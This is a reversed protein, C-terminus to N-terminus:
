PLESTVAENPAVLARRHLRINRLKGRRILGLFPRAFGAWVVALHRQVSHLPRARALKGPETLGEAALAQALCQLVAVARSRCAAEGEKLHVHYKALTVTDFAHTLMSGLTLPAYTFFGTVPKGPAHAALVSPLAAAARRARPTRYLWLPKLYPGPDKGTQFTYSHFDIYGRPALEEALRWLAAAEPCQDPRDRAFDWYLNIGAANAAQTGNAFGDPNTVPVIVVCFQSRVLSAASTGLWCLLAESALTDPEPPHFGSTVLITGSKTQQGHIYAVIDRGEKSRGIIRRAMGAAIAAVDCRALVQSADRPLTNAVFLRSEADLLVRLAYSRRGDTRGEGAHRQWPGNPDRAAYILPAIAPLDSWDRCEVLLEVMARKKSHNALGVVFHVNYDHTAWDARTMSERRITARVRNGDVIAREIATGFAPQVIRIM